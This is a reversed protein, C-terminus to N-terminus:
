QTVLCKKLGIREVCAFAIRYLEVLNGDNIEDLHVDTVVAILIHYKEYFNTASWVGAWPRETQPNFTHRFDRLFASFIEM